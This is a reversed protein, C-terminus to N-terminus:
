EFSLWIHCFPTQFTFPSSDQIETMLPNPNHIPRKYGGLAYGWLWFAKRRQAARCLGMVLVSQAAARCPM